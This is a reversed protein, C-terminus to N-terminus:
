SLLPATESRSQAPSGYNANVQPSYMPSLVPSQVPSLVPALAQHAYQAQAALVEPPVALNSNVQQVQAQASWSPAAWQAWLQNQPAYFTTPTFIELDPCWPISMEIMIDYRCSVLQSHTSPQIIHGKRGYLPLPTNSEKFSHQPTGDYKQQSVIDRFTQIHGHAKLTIERILKVVFHNIDVASDNNVKVYVQATEGSM